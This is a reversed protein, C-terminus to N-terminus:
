HNQSGHVPGPHELIMSKPVHELILSKPVNLDYECSRLWGHFLYSALQPEVWMCITWAVELM